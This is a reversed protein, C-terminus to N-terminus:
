PCALLEYNYAHLLQLGVTFLVPSDIEDSLM